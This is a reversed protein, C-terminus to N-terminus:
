YLWTFILSARCCEVAHIRFCVSYNNYCSESLIFSFLWPFYIFNNKHHKQRIYQSKESVVTRKHWVLWASLGCAIRLVANSRNWDKAFSLGWWLLSWGCGLDIRGDEYKQTTVIHRCYITNELTVWGTLVFVPYYVIVLFSYSPELAMRRHFVLHCPPTVPISIGGFCSFRKTYNSMRGWNVDQWM